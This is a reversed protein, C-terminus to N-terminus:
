LNKWSEKTELPISYMSILLTLNGAVVMLQSRDADTLFNNLRKSLTSTNGTKNAPGNL